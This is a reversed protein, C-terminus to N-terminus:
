KLIDAASRSELHIIWIQLIDTFDLVIVDSEEILVVLVGRDLCVFNNTTWDGCRKQLDSGDEYQQLTWVFSCAQALNLPILVWLM